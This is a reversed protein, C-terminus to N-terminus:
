GLAAARISPDSYRAIDTLERQPEAYKSRLRLVTRLGAEDIRLDRFIGREADLLATAARAAVPPPMNARATLIAAAAARNADLWVLSDRFGRTFGVLAERKAALTGRRAAAVIGQYAGVADRGRALRRFGRAEAALDLPTNLLTAAQRGELLAALRQAGGGVAVWEVQGALGAQGLVERLVFAFGTTMADVSVARGRLAALDAVDAAAMVSLMGDDVGFFAAFDSPGPLRAEGQGENYAVINDVSTLALDYRGAYLDTAMARSNPTLELAVEVGHRAFHGQAQGAWIVLNSAGAFAVVNLRTAGQALAGGAGWAAVTAAAMAARRTLHTM